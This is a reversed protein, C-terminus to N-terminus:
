RHPPLSPGAPDKQNEDKPALQALIALSPTYNSCAELSEILAGVAGPADDSGLHAVAQNRLLAPHGRLDGSLGEFIREAGEADGRQALRNARALERLQPDRGTMSKVKVWVSSPIGLLFLFNWLFTKWFIGNACNDCVHRRKYSWGYLLLLFYFYFETYGRIRDFLGCEGCIRYTEGRTTIARTEQRFVCDCFPCYTFPSPDLGSLDITCGCEPCPQVRYEGGRGEAELASRRAAAATASSVREVAREIARPDAGSIELVLIRGDVCQTALEGRLEAGERLLLIARSDRVEVSLIEPIELTDEGLVLREAECRGTKSWLGQPHGGVVFKFHFEVPAGRPKM